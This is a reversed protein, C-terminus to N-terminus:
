KGNEKYKIQAGYGEEATGRVVRFDSGRATLNGEGKSRYTITQANIWLESVAYTEIDHREREKVQEAM